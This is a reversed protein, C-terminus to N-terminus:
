CMKSIFSWCSIAFKGLDVMTSMSCNCSDVEYFTEDIFRHYRHYRYVIVDVFLVINGFLFLFLSFPISSTGILLVLESPIRFSYFLMFSFSSYSDNIVNECLVISDSHCHIDLLYLRWYLFMQFINNLFLLFFFMSIVYHM